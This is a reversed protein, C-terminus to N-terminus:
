LLAHMFPLFFTFDIGHHPRGGTHSRPHAERGCPEELKGLQRQKDRCDSSLKELEQYKQALQLKGNQLRPRLSLSEEALSRNTTLLTDRAM